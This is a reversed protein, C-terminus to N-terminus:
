YDRRSQVQFRLPPQDLAGVGPPAVQSRNLSVSWLEYDTRSSLHTKRLAAKLLCRCIGSSPTPHECPHYHGGNILRKGIMQLWEAVSPPYTVM